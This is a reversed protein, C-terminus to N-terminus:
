SSLASRVHTFRWCGNPVSEHCDIVATASPNSDVKLFRPRGNLCKAFYGTGRKKDLLEIDGIKSKARLYFAEAGDPTKRIGVLSETTFSELILVRLVVDQRFGEDFLQRIKQHYEILPGFADPGPGPTRTCKRTHFPDAIPNPLM